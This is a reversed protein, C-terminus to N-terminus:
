QIFKLSQYDSDQEVVSQYVPQQSLVSSTTFQIHWHASPFSVESHCKENSLSLPAHRLGIQVGASDLRGILGQSVQSKLTSHLTVTM